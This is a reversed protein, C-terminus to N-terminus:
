VMRISFNVSALTQEVEAAQTTWAPHAAGPSAISGPSASRRRDAWDRRPAAQERPHDGLIFRHRQEQREEPESALGHDEACETVLRSPVGTACVRPSSWHFDWPLVM